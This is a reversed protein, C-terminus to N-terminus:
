SCRATCRPRSWTRGRPIRGFAGGGACGARVVARRAAPLPHTAARGRVGRVRRAVSVGCVVRGAGAPQRLPQDARPPLLLVRRLLGDFRLDRPRRPALRDGGAGGAAIIGAAEHGMIIPPIRRGTSGDYGHVDSGCIGCAQVRILVDGPGIEPEPVDRVALSRYQEM